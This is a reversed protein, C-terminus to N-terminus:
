TSQAVNHSGCRVSVTLNLFDSNQLTVGLGNAANYIIGSGAASNPYDVLCGTDFAVGAIGDASGGWTAVATFFEHSQTITIAIKRSIEGITAQTTGLSHAATQTGIALYAAITNNYSANRFAIRNLGQYTVINKVCKIEETGDARVVKAIFQGSIAVNQDLDFTGNLVRFASSLRKFISQNM